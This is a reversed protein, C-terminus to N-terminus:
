IGHETSARLEPDTHAGHEPCWDYIRLTMASPQTYVTAPMPAYVVEAVEIKETPTQASTQQDM